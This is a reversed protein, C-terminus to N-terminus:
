SLWIRVGSWKARLVPEGRGGWPARPLAAPLRPRMDAESRSRRGTVSDRQAQTRTEFPPLLVRGGRSESGERERDRPGVHSSPWRRGVRGRGWRGGWLRSCVHSFCEPPRASAPPADCPRPSAPSAPLLRPLEPGNEADRSCHLQAPPTLPPAPTDAPPVTCSSPFPSVASSAGLGVTVGAPAGQARRSVTETDGNAPASFLAPAATKEM